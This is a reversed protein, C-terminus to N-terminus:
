AFSPKPPRELGGPIFGLLASTPMVV